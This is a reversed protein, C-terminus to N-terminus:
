GTDHRRAAPARPGIAEGNDLPVAVELRPADGWRCLREEQLFDLLDVAGRGIWGHPYVRGPANMHGERRLACRGFVWGAGDVIGIARGNAVARRGEGEDGQAIAHVERRQRQCGGAFRANQSAHRDFRPCYEDVM